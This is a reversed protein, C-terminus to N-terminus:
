WKVVMKQSYVKSLMCWYWMMDGYTTGNSYQMIMHTYWLIGMLNLNCVLSM